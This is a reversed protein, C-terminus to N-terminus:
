KQLQERITFSEALRETIFPQDYCQERLGCSACKNRNATYPPIESSRILAAAQDRIHLITHRLFPNLIVSREEGEDVYRIFGTTIQKQHQESLLLLYAGLQVQHSEWAGREPARGSKIEIPIIDGDSVEIHDVIGRLGLAASSLAVESRTQPLLQWLASGHAQHAEMLRFAFHSRQEAERLALGWLKYFVQPLSYGLSKLQQKRRLITDRLAQAYATRYRLQLEAPPLVAETELIVREDGQHMAALAEHRITGLLTAPKEPERLKLAQQLFLKRACFLYTSLASVSLMPPLLATLIYFDVALSQQFRSATGNSRPEAVGSCASM